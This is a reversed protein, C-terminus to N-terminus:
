SGEVVERMAENMKWFETSEPARCETNPCKPVKDAQLDFLHETRPQGDVYLIHAWRFVLRKM